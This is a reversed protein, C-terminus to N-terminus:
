VDFILGCKRSFSTTESLGAWGASGNKKFGGGQLTELRRKRYELSQDRAVGRRCREYFDEEMM